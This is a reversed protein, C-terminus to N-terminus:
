TKRQSTHHSQKIKRQTTCCMLFSHRCNDLKSKKEPAKLVVDSAEKLIKSDFGKVEKLFESKSERLLKLKIHKEKQFMLSLRSNRIRKQNNSNKSHQDCLFLVHLTRHMLMTIKKLSIVHQPLFEVEKLFSYLYFFFHQEKREEEKEFLDYRLEELITNNHNDESNSPNWSLITIVIFLLNTFLNFYKEKEKFEKEEISITTTSIMQLKVFDLFKSAHLQFAFILISIGNCDLITQCCKKANGGQQTPGIFGLALALLLHGSQWKCSEIDNLLSEITDEISSSNTLSKDKFLNNLQNKDNEIVDVEIFDFFENCLELLYNHGKEIQYSYDEMLNKDGLRLAKLGESLKSFSSNTRRGSKMKKLLGSGLPPPLSNTNHNNSGSEADVEDVFRKDRKGRFFNTPSTSRQPRFNNDDM